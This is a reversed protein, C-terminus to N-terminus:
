VEIHSCIKCEPNKELTIYTLDLNKFILEGRTKYSDKDVINTIYKIIEIVAISSSFLTMSSLGGIEEHRNLVPHPKPKWGKLAEKFHTTYCEVCPTVGPIILEGTSALHADFGGGIYHPINLLTCVRSIKASTYGIYPEDLTNIVFTAENIYKEIDSTPNMLENITEVNVNKNIKLLKHKLSDVKLKGIDKWDFYLHRTIDSDQVIDYDYIVINESGAMVLQIAINGGIAGAGFILFRTEKIKKQALMVEENTELFEMFYNLQRDYRVIEKETLVTQREKVAVIIKKKLLENCLKAVVSEEINVLAAIERVSSKGHINELIEIVKNNVKFRKQIRTNIFYATIIDDTLYLDVSDKIKFIKSM